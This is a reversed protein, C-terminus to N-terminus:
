SYTMNKEYDFGTDDMNQLSDKNPMFELTNARPLVELEVSQKGITSQISRRNIQNPEEIKSDRVAKNGSNESYYSLTAQKETDMGVYKEEEM